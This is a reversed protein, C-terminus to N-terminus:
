SRRAAPSRNRTGRASDFCLPIGPAFRKPERDQDANLYGNLLLFYVSPQAEKPPQLFGADLTDHSEQALATGAIGHSGLLAAILTSLRAVIHSKAKANM